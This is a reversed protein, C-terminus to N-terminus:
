MKLLNRLRGPLLTIILGIFAKRNIAVNLSEQFYAKANELLDFSLNDKGVQYLALSLKKNILDHWEPFLGIEQMKRFIFALNENKDVAKRGSEMAQHVRYKTLRKPVYYAPRHTAALLCSIWYDYAGSVEKVLLALDLSDKRFVSAMALPVGNKLLVIEELNNVLGESMAARGYFLNIRDTELIDIQGNDRMIWHDSFALVIDSNQELPVVLNELFEPEWADDDNLIAIYRGRAEEIASRLSLAVGLTPSNARYLINPCQFYDCIAKIQSSNSDDAVIIEFATFTQSQASKLAQHLFETRKYVTVIITVLPSAQIGANVEENLNM